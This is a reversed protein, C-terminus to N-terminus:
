AGEGSWVRDCLGGVGIMAGEEFEATGCMYDDVDGPSEAQPQEGRRASIATKAQRQSKVCQIMRRQGM